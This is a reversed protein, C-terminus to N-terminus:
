KDPLPREPLKAKVSSPNAARELDVALVTSLMTISAMTDMASGLPAAMDRHTLHNHFLRSSYLHLTLQRHPPFYVALRGVSHSQFYSYMSIQPHLKCSVQIDEHEGHLNELKMRKRSHFLGFLPNKGKKLLWFNVEIGRM